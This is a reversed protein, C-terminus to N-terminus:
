GARNSRPSHDALRRVTAGGTDPVLEAFRSQADAVADQIPVIWVPKQLQAAARAAAAAGAVAHADIRAQGRVGPGGPESVVLWIDTTGAVVLERVRGRVERWAAPAANKNTRDALRAAIATEVADYSSFPGAPRLLPDQGSAWGRRRDGSWGGCAAIDTAALDYRAPSPAIKRSSAM